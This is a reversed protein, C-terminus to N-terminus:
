GGTKRPPKKKPFQITGEEGEESKPGSCDGGVKAHADRVAAAHAADVLDKVNATLWDPVSTRLIAAIVDLKEAMEKEIRVPKTPTKRQRGMHGELRGVLSVPVFLM